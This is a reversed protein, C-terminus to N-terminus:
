RYYPQRLPAPRRWGEDCAAEETSAGIIERLDDLRSDDVLYSRDKEDKESFRYGELEVLWGCGTPENEYEVDYEVLMPMSGGRKMPVPFTNTESSM